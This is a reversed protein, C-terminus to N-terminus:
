RRIGAIQAVVGPFFEALFGPGGPDALGRRLRDAEDGAHDHHRGQAGAGAGLRQPREKM